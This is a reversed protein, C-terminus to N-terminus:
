KGKYSSAHFGDGSCSSCNGIRPVQGTGNCEKCLLWHQPADIVFSSLQRLFFRSKLHSPVDKHASRIQAALLKFPAEFIRWMEAAEDFKRKPTGQLQARLPLTELWDEGAEDVLTPVPEDVSLPEADPEPPLEEIKTEIKYVKAKAEKVDRSNITDRGKEKAVEKAVEAVKPRDEKPVSVFERATRENPNDVMTSLEKAVQASQIQLSAFQRTFGWREVCYSEFSSHTARYLKARRIEMLATGVDIFTQKGREIVAELSQLRGSEDLTLTTETKQVISV